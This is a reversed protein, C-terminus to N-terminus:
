RRSGTMINFLYVKFQERWAALLWTNKSYLNLGPRFVRNVIWYQSTGLCVTWRFPVAFSCWGECGSPWSHRKVGTVLVLVLSGDSWNKCSFVRYPVVSVSSLPCLSKKGVVCGWMWFSHRMARARYTSPLVTFVELKCSCGSTGWLLCEYCIVVNCDDQKADAPGIVSYTYINFLNRHEQGNVIEDHLFV